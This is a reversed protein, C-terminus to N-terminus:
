PSPPAAPAGCSPPRWACPARPHVTHLAAGTRRHRHQEAGDRRACSFGSTPGTLTGRTPLRTGDDVLLGFVAVSPLAVCQLATSTANWVPVYGTMCICVRKHAAPPSRPGGRGGRMGAPMAATPTPRVRCQRQGVVAAGAVLPVAPATFHGGVVSEAVRRHWPAFGVVDGTAGGGDDDQDDPRRGARPALGARARVRRRRRRRRGAGTRCRRPRRGGRGGRVPHVGWSPSWAAGARVTNTLAVLDCRAGGVGPACACAFPRPDACTGNVGCWEACTMCHRDHSSPSEPRRVPPPAYSNQFFRRGAGCVVLVDLPSLPFPPAAYFTRRALGRGDLLLTRRPWRTPRPVRAARGRTARGCPWGPGPARRLALGRFVDGYVIVGGYPTSVNPHVRARVHGVRPRAPASGVPVPVPQARSRAGLPRVARTDRRVRCRQHPVAPAHYAWAVRATLLVFLCFRAHDISCTSRSSSLACM